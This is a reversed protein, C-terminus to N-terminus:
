RSTTRHPHCRTLDFQGPLRYIHAVILWCVWALFGFPLYGLYGLIPMKSFLHVADVYPIEYYWYNPNTQYGGHFYASGYNWIEWFLGCILSALGVLVVPTWNGGKLPHIPTWNYLALAATLVIPPALWLVVFLQFPFAGFLVLAIVGAAVVCRLMGKSLPVKPGRSWRNRLGDFTHLLTYWEFIAPLVVSFSILAWIAQWDQSFIQNSPYVWFEIAYYNLFEFFGWAPISVFAIAVMRRPHTGLLSRGSARLYVVGDVAIILGWWLTLFSYRAWSVPGWWHLWWSVVGLVLGGWFWWPLRGGLALRLRPEARRRFGFLSPFLLFAVVLLGVAACAAFYFPDFPPKQLGSTSPPFHQWGPPLRHWRWLSGIMPLFAVLVIGLLLSFIRRKPARPSPGRGGSARTVETTSSM